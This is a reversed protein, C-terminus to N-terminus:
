ILENNQWKKYLEQTEQQPFVFTLRGDYAVTIDLLEANHKIYKSVQLVNKIFVCKKPEYEKGTIKSKILFM